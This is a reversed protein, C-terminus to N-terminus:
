APLAAIGKVYSEIMLFFCYLLILAVGERWTLKYAGKVFTMFIFCILLLFVWSTFYMFVAEKIPHIIAVIGLVLTSNTVVSGVSDGLAMESHGERVSRISFMLEPLTTGLALVVLGVMILPMDLHVSMLLAHKVAFHAGIVVFGFSVFFILLDLVVEKRTFHEHLVKHYFRQQQLIKHIYVFFVAVLIVGDIRSLENGISMLVLPLAAIILMYYIDQRAAKTGIPIGRALLIPIGLVITLDNINAGILNGLSLQPTGNLASTIGVFLEPVSTSVGVLIFSIIFESIRLYTAIKSIYQVMYSSAVVLIFLAGVFYFVDALLTM